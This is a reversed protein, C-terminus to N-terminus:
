TGPSSRPCGPLTKAASPALEARWDGDDDADPTPVLGTITNVAAALEARPVVAEIAEWVEALTINEGWGDAELLV